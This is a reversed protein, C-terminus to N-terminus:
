YSASSKAWMYASLVAVFSGLLGSALAASYEKSRAILEAISPWISTIAPMIASVVVYLGSGAVFGIIAIFFYALVRNM